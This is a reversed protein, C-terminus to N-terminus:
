FIKQIYLSLVIMEDWLEHEVKQKKCFLIMKALTILYGSVFLLQAIFKM